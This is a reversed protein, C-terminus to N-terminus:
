GKEILRRFAKGGKYNKIQRERQFAERRSIFKEIYVAQVPLHAKLSKTKGSNHQKM